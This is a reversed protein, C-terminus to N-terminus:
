IFFNNTIRAAVKKRAQLSLSVVSSVGEFSVVLIGEVTDGASVDVTGGRGASVTMFFHFRNVM